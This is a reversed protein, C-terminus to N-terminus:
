SFPFPISATFSKWSIKLLFAENSNGALELNSAKLTAPKVVSLVSVILVSSLDISSNLLCTNPLSFKPTYLSPLKSLFLFALAGSSVILLTWFGIPAVSHILDTMEFILDVVSFLDTTSGTNSVLSISLLLFLAYLLM